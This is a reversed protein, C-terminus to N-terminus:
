LEKIDLLHGMKMKKTLLYRINDKHPPQSLPVREVIELNYGELGHYKAPNNTMLRMSTIGLDVLIQAGIGYERSDVELGLELNAEVTDRGKDQLEYARLKHTLGIGRGEHGRLYIVVGKGEEDIKKLALQLQAGCDCRRSGFIDGTLCESHVRVLINEEQGVDGKVLAIHEVGDLVSKYSYAMFEGYETPIRAQSSRKVLKERESRYRILDAISIMLLNNQEAFRQLDERKAVFGDENVIESIVGAPFRGAMRALDVAAETHGSRKLVGGEAYKLPFIHGPRLLDEPRTKPNVLAQITKARDDASIGTTTGHKYDVSVTFATANKETNDAVMQPLQLADLRNGEMAICIVGGTHKVMFGLNEASVADAAIILDGENERNEDDVVIVYHGKKIAEIAQEITAFSM